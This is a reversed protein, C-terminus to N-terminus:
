IQKELAAQMTASSERVILSPPLIIRTAVDGMGLIRRHLLRAAEIGSQRIDAAITTLSPRSFAAEPINDFGVVAIDQGPTLGAAQLGQMAGLAVIDNYCLIATPPNPQKILTSIALYGGERTPPGTVVLSKNITLGNAKLASQYGAFRDLYTSTTPIGGLFAIRRHGGEVLHQAGIQVGLTNESGVYDINSGPLYRGVLVTPIRWSQLKQITEPLTEAVPFLILGCVKNELMTGLLKEQKNSSEFHTGLLVTYGHEDLQDHAGALLESFFPNVIDRIIIGVASSRNSRLNAAVRDYVYGLREISDLVKRTTHESIAQSGRVVLSATTTSVGADKAVDVLTVNKFNRPNM